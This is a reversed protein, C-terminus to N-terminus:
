ANNFHKTIVKIILRKQLKKNDLIDTLLWLTYSLFSFLKKGMKMVFDITICAICTFYM